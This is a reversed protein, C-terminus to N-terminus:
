SVMVFAPGPNIVALLDVALLSLLLSLPSM